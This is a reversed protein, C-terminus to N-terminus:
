GLRDDKLTQEQADLFANVAANWGAPGAQSTRVIRGSQEGQLAPLPPHHPNHVIVGQDAAELMDIDNPADGLAMTVRAGLRSKIEDMGDKKTKGFSLTLFRGGARATIGAERLSALFEAKEDESGAWLGPESFARAKARAADDPTLGTIQAVTGVDMDGFGTFHQRLGKSIHDLCARLRSYDQACVDIDAGLGIVGAGNEVLAPYRSLDMHKQLLLTESATKSTALVVPVGQAALRDLAPQAPAWSYTDHDLLTGDLDSFVILPIPRQM